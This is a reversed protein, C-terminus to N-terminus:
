RHHHFPDTYVVAVILAAAVALAPVLIRRRSLSFVPAVPDVANYGM